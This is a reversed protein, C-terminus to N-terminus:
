NKPTEFIGNNAEDDSENNMTITVQRRRGHNVKTSIANSNMYPEINDIGDSRQMIIAGDASTKLILNINNNPAIINETHPQNTFRSVEKNQDIM